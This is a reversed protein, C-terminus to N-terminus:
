LTQYRNRSSLFPLAQKERSLNSYIQKINQLLIETTQNSCRYHLQSLDIITARLYYYNVSSGLLNLVTKLTVTMVLNMQEVFREHDTSCQIISQLLDVQIM